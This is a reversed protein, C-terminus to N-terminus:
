QDEFVTILAVKVVRGGREQLMTSMALSKKAGDKSTFPVPHGKTSQVTGRYVTGGDYTILWGFHIVDSRKTM